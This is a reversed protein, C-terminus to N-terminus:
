QIMLDNLRHIYSVHTSFWEEGSTQLKLCFEGEVPWILKVSWQEINIISYTDVM